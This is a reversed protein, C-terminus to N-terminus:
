SFICKKSAIFPLRNPKTSKLAIRPLLVYDVHTRFILNEESVHSNKRNKAMKSALSRRLPKLLFASLRTIGINFDTGFWSRTLFSSFDSSFSPLAKLLLLNVAKLYPIM